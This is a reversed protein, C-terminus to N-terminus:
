PASDTVPTGWGQALQQVADCHITHLLRCANHRLAVPLDQTDCEALQDVHPVVDVGGCLTRVAVGKHTVHALLLVGEFM